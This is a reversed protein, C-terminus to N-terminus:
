TPDPRKTYCATCLILFVGVEHTPLKVYESTVDGCELCIQELLPTGTRAGNSRHKFHLLQKVLRKFKSMVNGRSATSSRPEDLRNDIRGGICGLMPPLTPVVAMSRHDPASFTSM